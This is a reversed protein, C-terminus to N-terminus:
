GPPRAELCLALKRLLLALSRQEGESLPRLLDAELAMDERFAKEITRRGRGTLQVLLSRADDQAAHRSVLGAKALRALRDSLGGSSIMLAQYLETPRLRYPPGSRLLTALVDFEGTDLGHAAFVAEITPRVRATIRRARGLIAMGQTDGGPLERAWQARMRDVHDARESM